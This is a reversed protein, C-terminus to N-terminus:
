FKRKKKAPKANAKRELERALEARKREARQEDDESEDPSKSKSAAEPQPTKDIQRKGIAGIKRGTLRASEAEPTSSKREPKVSAQRAKGGIRGITGIKRKQLPEAPPPVPSHSKSPKDGDSESATEDDVDMTNSSHIPSKVKSSEPEPKKGIRGIGGTKHKHPPSKVPEEESDSATADTDVSARRPSQVAPPSDTTKRKGGITGLKSKAPRSVIPHSDPIADGDGDTTEDPDAETRRTQTSALHPPTAQVQFDDGETDSDAAHRLEELPVDAKNGISSPITRPVSSVPTTCRQWWELDGHAPIELDGSGAPKSSADKALSIIGNVIDTSPLATNRWTAERFPALGKIKEEAYARSPNRKGSLVNWVNELGLGAHDLKDVLRDIIADKVRLQEILEDVEQTRAQLNNMVPLVLESAIAANPCQAMQFTWVLPKLGDPLRCTITLALLTDDDKPMSKITISTQDHDPASPDFAAQIKNLLMLMQDPGETPDISTDENLSRKGIGKRDLDEVWLDALDTVHVKYSQSTFVPRVLLAPLNHFAPLPVWNASNSAM